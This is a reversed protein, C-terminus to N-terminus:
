NKVAFLEGREIAGLLDIRRQHREEGSFPTSLFTDVIRMVDPVELEGGALCLINADNHSRTLEAAKVSCCLAARIGDFKNAAISIGIGTSCCLIGKECGGNLVAHAVKAAYLPYDTSDATNTGFDKCAIGQEELHSIIRKKLDLGAHDCGLALM